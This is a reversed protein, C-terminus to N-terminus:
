MWMEERDYGASGNEVFEFEISGGVSLPMEFHDWEGPYVEVFDHDVTLVKEGQHPDTKGEVEAIGGDDWKPYEVESIWERIKDLIM